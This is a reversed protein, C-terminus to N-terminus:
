IQIPKGLFPNGENLGMKKPFFPSRGNQYQNMQIAMMQQLLLPNMMSPLHNPLFPNLPAMLSQRMYPPILAQSKPDFLKDRPVQSTPLSPVKSFNRM